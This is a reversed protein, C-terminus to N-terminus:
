ALEKEKELKPSSYINRLYGFLLVKLLMRPHYSSAGIRSYHGIILHINIRDIVASVTRAPHELPLLDCLNKPLLMLQNPDYDKFVINLDQKEM